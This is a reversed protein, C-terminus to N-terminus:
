EWSIPLPQERAKGGGTGSLDSLSLDGCRGPGHQGKKLQSTNVLILMKQGGKTIIEVERDVVVEGSSMSLRM